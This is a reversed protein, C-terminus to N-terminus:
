ECFLYGFVKYLYSRLDSIHWKFNKVASAPLHLSLEADGRRQPSQIEVAIIFLKNKRDGAFLLVM